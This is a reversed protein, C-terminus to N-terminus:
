DIRVCLKGVRYTFASCNSASTAIIVSKDIPEGGGATYATFDDLFREVQEVAEMHRAHKLNKSECKFKNVM